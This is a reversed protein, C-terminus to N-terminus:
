PKFNGAGIPGITVTGKYETNNAFSNKFFNKFTDPKILYLSCGFALGVIMCILAYDVLASGKKHSFIKM